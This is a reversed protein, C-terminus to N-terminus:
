KDITDGRGGEGRLIFKLLPKYRPERFKDILNASIPRATQPDPTTVESWKTVELAASLLPLDLLTHFVKLLFFLVLMTVM